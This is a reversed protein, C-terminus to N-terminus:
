RWHKLFAYVKLIYSFPTILVGVTEIITRAPVYNIIIDQRVVDTASVKYELQKGNVIIDTNSADGIILYAQKDSSLDFDKKNGKELM